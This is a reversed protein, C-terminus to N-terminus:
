GRSSPALGMLEERTRRRSPPRPSSPAVTSLAAARVVAREAVVPPRTPRHARAMRLVSLVISFTVVSAVCYAVIPDVLDTGATVAHLTVLVCVAYSTLHIRHWIRRPLRNRVLSTIQIAAILWLAIVSWAIALPRWSSAFPVVADVWSFSVTTDMIIAVIHLVILLLALGSLYPHLDLLWRRAGKKAVVKGSALTGLVLTAFLFAWAVLGSSRAIYWWTSSSM